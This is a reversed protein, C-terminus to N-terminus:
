DGKGSVFCHAPSKGLMTMSTRIPLRRLSRTRPDATKWALLRMEARLIPIHWLEHTRARM